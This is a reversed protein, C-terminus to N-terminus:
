FIFKLQEKVVVFEQESLTTLKKRLRLKDLTRMQFLLVVSDHELKSIKKPLFATTLKGKANLNSTIPAILVTTLNKNLIDNQMILVPRYGSQEHGKTPNLDALFIDGQKTKM